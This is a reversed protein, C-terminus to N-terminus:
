ENGKTIDSGLYIKLDNILDILPLQNESIKGIRGDDTLFLIVGNEGRVIQIIKETTNM